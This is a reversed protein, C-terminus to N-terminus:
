NAEALQAGSFDAAFDSGGVFYESSGNIGKIREIQGRKGKWEHSDDAIVVFDGVQFGDLREVPENAARFLGLGGESLYKACCDYNASETAGDSQGQSFLGDLPKIGIFASPINFKKGNVSSSTRETEYKAGVIGKLGSCFKNLAKAKLGAASCYAVYQRYLEPKAMSPAESDPVLCADIFAAISDSSIAQSDKMAQSQDTAAWIEEIVDERSMSMAWSVVESLCAELKGEITPDEKGMRDLTSIPKCRRDWGRSSDEFQIEQTSAAVFRIGWKKSYASSSFLPRGSMSGDDVLEYFAGLKGVAGAIDPFAVVRNGTLNQHRGEAKALSAFEGDGLSKFHSGLMKGWLRILLGKGTGSKGGLYIFKGAPLSPNLLYQTAAQITRLQDAGYALKIFDLFAQPCEAGPSYDAQIQSNLYDSKRHERFENTEVNLVGNKFSLLSRSDPRFEIPVSLQQLNFGFANRIGTNSALDFIKTREGTKRNEKVRYIKKSENAILSKIADDSQLQWIGADESYRYFAGEMTSYSGKGEEFLHINLHHDLTAANPSLRYPDCEETEEAEEGSASAKGIEAELRGIFEEGSMAKLIEEIDGKAEIEPYIQTAGIAVFPCQVKACAKAIKEAKVAGTADHDALHAWALGRSKLETAASELDKEGWSGGQFSFSAIGISRGIEVSKEGEQSLLFTACGSEADALAEEFRYPKWTGAGKGFTWRDGELFQPRPAKDYGKPKSSDAWEFRRVRHVPSYSYYIARGEGKAKDTEPVFTPADAPVIALRALKVAGAPIPAPKYKVKPASKRVFTNSERRESSSYRGWYQANLWRMIEKRHEVSNDNWCTLVDEDSVRVNHGDCCSCAFSVNREIPSDDAVELFERALERNSVPPIGKNGKGKTSNNV